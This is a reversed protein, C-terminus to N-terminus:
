RRKKMSLGEMTATLDIILKRGTQIYKVLGRNKWAQFTVTSVHFYLSAEKISYAFQKVPVAQKEPIQFKSAMAEVLEGVSVTFAPKDFLINKENATMKTFQKIQTCSYKIYSM